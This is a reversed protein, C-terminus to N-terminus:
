IIECYSGSYINQRGYIEQYITKYCGNSDFISATVFTSNLGINSLEIYPTNTSYTGYPSRVIYSYPAIGGSVSMSIVSQCEQAYSISSSVLMNPYPSLYISSTQSCYGDYIQVEYNGAELGVAHLSSTFLFSSSNPYILTIDINNSYNGIFSDINISGNNTFCSLSQTALTYTFPDLNSATFSSSFIGGNIDYVLIDHSGSTVLSPTSISHSPGGDINYYVGQSSTVYLTGANTNCSPLPIINLIYTTQEYFPDFSQSVINGLYDKVYLTNKTTSVSGTIYINTFGSVSIYNINDFSYYYVPTGGNINFSHSTNTITNYQVKEINFNDITLPNQYINLKIYALNSINGIGDEITYGLRYHGPIYASQSNILSISGTADISYSPFTYGDINFIQTSGYNLSNCDSFDNSLINYGYSHSVNLYSLNDNVATPTPNFFCVYDGDTIVIIGLAYFINGIYFEGPIGSNITERYNPETSYDFINGEGDDRIYYLSESIILTNPKINNGYINKDISIINILNGKINDSISGTMNILNRIDTTYPGKYLTNQLYNDFSSSYLFEGDSKIYNEYFLHKISSFMLRKYENNTTLYDDVSNFTDEGLPLNEGIYSTVGSNLSGIEIDFQKNAEYQSISIDAPSIKKYAFSM